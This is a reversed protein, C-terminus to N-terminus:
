SVTLSVRQKGRKGRKMQEVPCLLGAQIAHRIMEASLLERAVQIEVLRTAEALVVEVRSPMGMLTINGMTVHNTTYSMLITGSETIRVPVIRHRTVQWSKACVYGNNEM